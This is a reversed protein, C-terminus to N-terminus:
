TLNALVGIRQMVLDALEEYDSKEIKSKGQWKDLNIPEGINIWAKKLKIFKSNKPWIKYAGKIYAPVVPVGAKLAIFGIGLHARQLNGDKTRTGEPFILVIKGKQLLQIVNKLAITDPADRNFPIVNINRLLWGFFKNRFLTKRALYYIPKRAAVGAFIPDLYSSHNVAFIAGKPKRLNHRGRVQFHFLGRVLVSCIFRLYKYLMNGHWDM